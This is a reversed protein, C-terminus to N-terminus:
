KTIKYQMKKAKDKAINVQNGSINIITNKKNM